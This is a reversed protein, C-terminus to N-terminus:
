YSKITAQKHSKNDIQKAIKSYQEKRFHAIFSFNSFYFKKLHSSPSEVKRTLRMSNIPSEGSFLNVFV